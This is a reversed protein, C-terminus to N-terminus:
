FFGSDSLLLDDVDFLTQREGGVEGIEGFGYFCTGM